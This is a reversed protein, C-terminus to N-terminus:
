TFSNPTPRENDIDVQRCFEDVSDTAIAADTDLQPLDVPRIRLTARAFYSLASNRRVTLERSGILLLTFLGKCFIDLVVYALAVHDIPIANFKYLLSVTPYFLWATTTFGMLTKTTRQTLVNVTSKYKNYKYVLTGFMAIFIASAIGFFVMSTVINPSINFIYGCIFLAQNAFLIGIYELMSFSALQGLKIILLPTAVMWEVYFNKLIHHSYLSDYQIYINLLQIVYFLLTYTCVCCSLYYYIKDVPKGVFSHGLRAYYCVLGLFVAAGSSLAVVCNTTNPAADM